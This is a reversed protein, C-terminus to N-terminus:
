PFSGGAGGAPRGQGEHDLAYAAARVALIAEGRSRELTEGEHGLALAYVHEAQASGTSPTRGVPRVGHM